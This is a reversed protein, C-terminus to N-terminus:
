YSEAFCLAASVTIGAGRLINATASLTSGTTVVDDIIVVHSGKARLRLVLDRRSLEIHKQLNARRQRANLGSQDDAGASIQVCSVVDVDIVLSPRVGGRLTKAASLCIDRVPDGGRLAAAKARTPAPVLVTATPIDGRAALYELAAAFVAGVYNRVSRNNYEKMALVVNRRLDSYDGLTFLPVDVLEARWTPRPVERLDQQCQSCLVQGPAGCGACAQPLLLEGAQAITQQAGALM